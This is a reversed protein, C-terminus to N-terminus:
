AADPERRSRHTKGDDVIERYKRAHNKREVTEDSKGHVEFIKISIVRSFLECSIQIKRERRIEKQATKENRM